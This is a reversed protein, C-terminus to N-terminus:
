FRTLPLERKMSTRRIKTLNETLVQPEVVIITQGSTDRLKARTMKKPKRLNTNAKRLKEM